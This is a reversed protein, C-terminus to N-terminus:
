AAAQSEDPLFLVSVKEGMADEAAAALLSSYRREAWARIGEPGTLYVKDGCMGVPTLPEVWLRFTSEPVSVRLREVIAPWKEAILPLGEVIEERDFAPVAQLKAAKGPKVETGNALWKKFAVGVVRLPANQGNGGPLHWAAFAEAEAVHDRDPWADCARKVSHPDFTGGKAEAAQRLPAAIVAPLIGFDSDATPAESEANKQQKKKEKNPPTRVEPAPKGDVDSGKDHSTRVETTPKRRDVHSSKDYTQGPEILTYVSPRGPQNAGEGDTEVVLMGIRSLEACAREISKGSVGAIDAILKKSLPMEASDTGVKGRAKEAYAIECLAHYVAFGAGRRVQARKPDWESRLHELAAITVWIFPPTRADRASM